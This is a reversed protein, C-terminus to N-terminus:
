PARKKYKRTSKKKSDKISTVNRRFAGQLTKDKHPEKRKKYELKKQLDSVFALYQSPIRRLLVSYSGENPVLVKQLKDGKILHRVLCHFDGDGTVITAQRFNKYEIMTQLVLEADVNGKVKGRAYELVPKFVLIYGDNQLRTYLEQNKEIYGIFLYAKSVSYKEELYVRFRGFDLKWGAELVGLNLNQSDIFAYNGSGKKDKNQKRSDKNM